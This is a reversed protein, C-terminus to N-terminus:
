HPCKDRVIRLLTGMIQGALYARIDDDIAGPKISDLISWAEDAAWHSGPPFADPYSHQRLPEPM